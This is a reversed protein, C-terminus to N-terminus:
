SFRRASGTIHSLLIGDGVGFLYRTRDIGTVYKSSRSMRFPLHQTIEHARTAVDPAYKLELIIARDECWRDPTVRTSASLPYFALDSDITIRFEHDPTRFYNRSYRNVLTPQLKLLDHRLGEPLEAHRFMNQIERAPLGHAMKFSGLPFAAKRNVENHKIKLELTPKAVPGFLHGYWRIRVKVRDRSDGALNDEYSALSWTDLYINNILRRHFIPRFLVPHFRVISEVAPRDVYAVFKREYRYQDIDSIM